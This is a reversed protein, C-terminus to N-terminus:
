ENDGGRRQSITFALVFVGWALGALIGWLLAKGFGQSPELRWVIWAALLLSLLGMYIPNRPPPSAPPKSGKGKKKKNANKAMKDGQGPTVYTAPSLAQSCTKCPWPWGFATGWCWYKEGPGLDMVIGQLGFMAHPTVVILFLLELVFVIPNSIYDVVDQYTRLGGEVVFHHAIMHLGLLLILLLGSVAQVIWITTASSPRTTKKTATKDSTISVM